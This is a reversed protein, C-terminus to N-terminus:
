LIHVQKVEYRALHFQKKKAQSQRIHRIVKLRLCAKHQGWARKYSSLLYFFFMCVFLCCLLASMTHLFPLFLDHDKQLVHLGIVQEEFFHVKILLLVASSLLCCVKQSLLSLWYHKFFIGGFKLESSRKTFPAPRLPPVFVAFDCTSSLSSRLVADFNVLYRSRLQLQSSTETRLVLIRRKFLTELNLHTSILCVIFMNCVHVVM